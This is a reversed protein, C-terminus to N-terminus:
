LVKKIKYYVRTLQGRLDGSSKCTLGMKDYMPVIHLEGLVHHPNNFFYENIPKSYEGIKKRRTAQWEVTKDIKQLFVLDVTIKADLFLNDPLRYALILNVGSKNIIDRAHDKVNDLFFQPLIMAIIGKDRLMRASKAVFFHHIILHSLDPNFIDNITSRGYPPNGIILDYRNDNCCFNEFGTNIINIGSHLKNFLKCSANDLEIADINSNQAIIQPIHNFFIGSGASPELINCGNGNGDSQLGNFGMRMLATWMFRVLLEPTYYASKVTKKVSSIEDDTLYCKLQRYISPTFIAERLGGWGSYTNLIERKQQENISSDNNSLLKLVRLNNEVRDNLIQKNSM